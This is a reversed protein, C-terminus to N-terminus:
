AAKKNVLKYAANLTKKFPAEINVVPAALEITGFEKKYQRVGEHGGCPNLDFWSYGNDCADKFADHALLIAMGTRLFKELSAAHWGVAHKKAYFCLSGAVIQNEFVALSLKINNSARNFLEVFLEERYNTTAKKGWRRISDEYVEYYALWDSLTKAQRVVVGSEKAYRVRSRKKSTWKNYANDFGASMDIAYTQDQVTPKINLKSILSDYPNIFWLLNPYENYLHNVILKGHPVDLEDDSIWGGYTGEPSSVYTKTLGKFSEQVSFPILAKKEDSFHILKPCPYSKGKLYVNWIQAWERSHFYTAYNCDKWILDWENDTPTYIDEIALKKM